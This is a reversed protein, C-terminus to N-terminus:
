REDFLIIPQDAEQDDDITEKTATIRTEGRLSGYPAPEALVDYLTEDDPCRPSDRM